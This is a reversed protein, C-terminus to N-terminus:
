GSVATAASGSPRPAAHGTGTRQQVATCMYSATTVPAALRAQRRRVVQAPEPDVVHHEVRAGTVSVSQTVRRSGSHRV